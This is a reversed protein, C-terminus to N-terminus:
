IDYVERHQNALDVGNMNVNYDNIFIPIDLEMRAFDGFVRRAIVANEEGAAKSRITRVASIGEKRFQRFLLISTFYNDLFITFLLGPILSLRRAM